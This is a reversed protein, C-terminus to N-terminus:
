SATDMVPKPGLATTQNMATKSSLTAQSVVSHTRNRAAQWVCRYCTCLLLCLRRHCSRTTARMYVYTVDDDVYTVDDDMYTVDDYVPTTLSSVIEPSMVQGHEFHVTLPCM